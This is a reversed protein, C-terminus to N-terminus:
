YNHHYYGFLPKRDGDNRRCENTTKRTQLSEEEKRIKQKFGYPGM